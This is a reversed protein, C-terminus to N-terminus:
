QIYLKLQDVLVAENNNYGSNTCIRVEIDDDQAIPFERIFWPLGVNTCCNNNPHVCGAGDWLIDDTYYVNEYGGTNGSECYYHEGVFSPPTTGPVAACPCNYDPYNGDDSLGAVYTWVHRRPNDITISIGDVYADNISTSKSNHFGDTSYKQYGRLKVRIKRYNTGNVSFTTSYCGGTDSSSRCM